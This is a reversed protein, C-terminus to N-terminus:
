QRFQRNARSLIGYRIIIYSRYTIPSTANIYQYLEYRMCESGEDIRSQLTELFLQANILKRKRTRAPSPSDSGGRGVVGLPLIAGIACSEVVRGGGSSRGSIYSCRNLPPKYFPFVAPIEYFILLSLYVWIHHLM